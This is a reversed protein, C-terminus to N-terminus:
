LDKVALTFKVKSKLDAEFSIFPCVALRCAHKTKSISSIQQKTKVCLRVSCENVDYFRGAARNGHLEAHSIVKLKFSAEYSFRKRKRSEM